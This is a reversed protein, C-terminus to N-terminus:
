LSLKALFDYHEGEEVIECKLGVTQAIDKLKTYDIYLWDFEDSSQKKYHMKFTLEGHYERGLDLWMGGDEEEYMYSIDSSDLLIQGNPALLTKLKKLFDPLKEITGALGIGNMLLLLTDFKDGNFDM